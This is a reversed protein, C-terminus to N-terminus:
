RTSGGICYACNDFGCRHAEDLSDPVFVVAHGARVIEDVQCQTKENQLDHVEMSSSHKNGLYRKGLKSTTPHTSM